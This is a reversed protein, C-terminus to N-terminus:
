SGMGGKENWTRGNRKKQWLNIGKKLSLDLVSLCLSVNFQYTFPFSIPTYGCEDPIRGDMRARGNVKGKGEDNGNM